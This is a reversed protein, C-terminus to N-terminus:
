YSVNQFPYRVEAWNSNYDSEIHLIMRGDQFFRMNLPLRKMFVAPDTVTQSGKPNFGKVWFGDLIHAVISKYGLRGNITLPNVYHQFRTGCLTINGAKNYIM